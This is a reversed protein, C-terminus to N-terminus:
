IRLIHKHYSYITLSTVFPGTRFSSLL